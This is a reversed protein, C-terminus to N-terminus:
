DIQSPKRSSNYIVRTSSFPRNPTFSDPLPSPALTESAPILRRPSHIDNPITTRPFSGPQCPLPWHPSPPVPGNPVYATSSSPACLGSRAAAKVAVRKIKSRGVAAPDGGQHHQLRVRRHSHEHQQHGQEESADSHQPDHHQLPYPLTPPPAPLTLDHTGRPVQPPCEPPPPRGPQHARESSISRPTPPVWSSPSSCCAPPLPPALPAPRSAPGGPM